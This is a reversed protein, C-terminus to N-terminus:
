LTPNPGPTKTDSIIPPPPALRGSTEKSLEIKVLFISAAKRIETKATAQAVPKIKLENNPYNMMFSKFLMNLFIRIVGSFSHQQLTFIVLSCFSLFSLELLDESMWFVLVSYFTM